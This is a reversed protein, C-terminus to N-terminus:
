VVRNSINKEGADRKLLLSRIMLTMQFNCNFANNGKWHPLSSLLIGNVLLNNAAM